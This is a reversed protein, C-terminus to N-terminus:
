ASFIEPTNLASYTQFDQQCPPPDGGGGRTWVGCGGAGKRRNLAHRPASKLPAELKIVPGQCCPSCSADTNHNPPQFGPTLPGPFCNKGVVM